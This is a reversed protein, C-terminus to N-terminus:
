RYSPINRSELLTNNPLPSHLATAREYAATAASYHSNDGGHMDGAFPLAFTTRLTNAVDKEGIKTVVKDPATSLPLFTKGRYASGTCWDEPKAKAAIEEEVKKKAEDV